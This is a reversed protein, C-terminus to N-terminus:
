ERIDVAFRGVRSSGPRRIYGTVERRADAENPSPFSANSHFPPFHPLYLTIHHTLSLNNSSVDITPIPSLPYISNISSRRPRGPPGGSNDALTLSPSLATPSVSLRCPPSFMSCHRLRIQALWPAYSSPPSVILGTFASLSDVAVLAIDADPMHAAHYAPLNAISAALQSSSAASLVHLNRLSM